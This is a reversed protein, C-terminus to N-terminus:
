VWCYMKGDGFMYSWKFLRGKVQFTCTLTDWQFQWYVHRLLTQVLEQCVLASLNCLMLLSFELLIYKSNNLIYQRIWEPFCRYRICVWLVLNMGAIFQFLLEPVPANVIGDTSLRLMSGQYYWTSYWGLISPFSFM